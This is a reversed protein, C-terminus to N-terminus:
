LDDNYAAMHLHNTFRDKWCDQTIADPYYYLLEIVFPTLSLHNLRWPRHLCVLYLPYYGNTDKIKAADKNKCFIKIIEYNVADLEHMDHVNAIAEHLTLPNHKIKKTVPEM